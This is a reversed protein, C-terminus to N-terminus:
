PSATLSAYSRACTCSERGQLFWLLGLITLLVGVLMLAIYWTFRHQRRLLRSMYAVYSRFRGPVMPGFGWERQM